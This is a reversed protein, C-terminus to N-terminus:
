LVEQMLLEDIPFNTILREWERLAPHLRRYRTRFHEHLWYDNCFSACTLIVAHLDEAEDDAMIELLWTRGRFRAKACYSREDPHTEIAWVSWRM